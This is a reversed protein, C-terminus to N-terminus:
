AEMRRVFFRFSNEIKRNRTKLVLYYVIVCAVSVLVGALESKTVAYTGFLAAMLVIFPLLYALVVAKAASRSRLLLQVKDGPEFKEGYLSKALVTEQKQESPICISKAHCESCASSITIEVEVDEGHVARVIGEKCITQEEQQMIYNYKNTITKYVFGFDSFGTMYASDRKMKM